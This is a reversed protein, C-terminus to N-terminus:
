LGRRCHATFRRTGHEDVWEIWQPPGGAGQYHGTLGPFPQSEVWEFAESITDFLQIEGTAEDHVQARDDDLWARKESMPAGYGLSFGVLQSFRCPGDPRHNYTRAGGTTLSTARHTPHRCSRIRYQSRMIM